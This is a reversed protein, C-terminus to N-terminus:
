QTITAEWEKVYSLLESSHPKKQLYALNKEQSSFHAIKALLHLHSKDSSSFLFFLTHVKKGDLAGYDLPNKPFVTIIVDAGPHELVPDRPHPVAIGNNLATPMMEERDLLLDAIVEADLGVRTAIEKSVATIVEEKTKGPVDIIAGGKHMARYFSFQQSGTAPPYIQKEEFPTFGDQNMQLKCRMMWDEIESKDFRYQHNLLYAPIKRDKLWRRITTQSVNLLEAVDKIKLDM